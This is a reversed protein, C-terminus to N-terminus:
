SAQQHFPFSLLHVLKNKTFQKHHNLRYSKQTPLTDFPLPSPSPPLAAPLSPYAKNRLTEFLGHPLGSYLRIRLERLAVVFARDTESLGELEEPAFQQLTEM